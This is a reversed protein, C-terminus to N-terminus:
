IYGYAKYYKSYEKFSKFKEFKEVRGQRKTRSFFLGYMLSHLSEYSEQNKIFDVILDYIEDNDLLKLPEKLCRLHSTNVDVKLLAKNDPKLSFLKTIQDVTLRNEFSHLVFLKAWNIRGSKLMDVFSNYLIANDKNKVFVKGFFEKTTKVRLFKSTYRPPEEIEGNLHYIEQLCPYCIYDVCANYNAFNKDLFSPYAHGNKACAEELYNMVEVMLVEKHTVSRLSSEFANNGTFFRHTNVGGASHSMFRKSNGVQLVTMVKPIEGKFFFKTYDTSDKAGGHYTNLFVLRTKVADSYTQIKVGKHQAYYKAGKIHYFYINNGNKSCLENKSIYEKRALKQKEDKTYSM